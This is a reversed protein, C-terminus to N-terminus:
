PAIPRDLLANLRRKSLYINKGQINNWQDPQILFLKESRLDLQAPTLSFAALMNTLEAVRKEGRGPFSQRFEMQITVDECESLFRAGGRLVDLESGEVDIKILHPRACDLHLSDLTVMKVNITKRSLGKCKTPHISGGGFDGDTFYFEVTKNSNGLAANVQMHNDRHLGNAKASRQLLEFLRPNPEFGVSRCAGRLHHHLQLLYIGFNAGIDIVTDLPQALRKLVDLYPQEWEGRIMLNSGIGIDRSDIYIRVGSNMRVLSTNGGVYITRLGPSAAILREIRELRTKIDTLPGDIETM